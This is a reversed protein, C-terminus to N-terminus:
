LRDFEFDTIEPFDYTYYKESYELLKDTLAKIKKKINMKGERM